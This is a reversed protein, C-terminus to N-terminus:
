QSIYESEEVIVGIVINRHIYANKNKKIRKATTTIYINAM